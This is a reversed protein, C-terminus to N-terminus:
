IFPIYRPADLSYITAAFNRDGYAPVSVTDKDYLENCGLDDTCNRVSSHVPVKVSQFKDTATYYMWKGSGPHTPRGYLPLIQENDTNTLIGVQQVEPAYGRTPVNIPVGHAINPDSRLPPHHRVLGHVHPTPPMASLGHVYVDRVDRDAREVQLQTRASRLSDELQRNRQRAEDIHSSSARARGPAAPNMKGIYGAYGLYAVALALLLAIAVVPMSFCVTGPPCSAASSM